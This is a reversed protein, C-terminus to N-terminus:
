KVLPIFEIFLHSVFMFADSVAFRPSDKILVEPMVKDDDLLNLLSQGGYFAGSTGAGILVITQGDSSSQIYYAESSNSPAGDILVQGLQLSIYRSGPQENSIPIDLNELLFVSIYM